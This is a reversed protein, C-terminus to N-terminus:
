EGDLEPNNIEKVLAEKNDRVLKVAKMINKAKTSKTKRKGEILKKVYDPHCKFRDAIMQREPSTLDIQKTEM